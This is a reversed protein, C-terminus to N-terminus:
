LFVWPFWVFPFFIAIREFYGSRQLCLSFDCFNFRSWWHARAQKTRFREKRENASIRFDVLRTLSSLSFKEVVVKLRKAPFIKV